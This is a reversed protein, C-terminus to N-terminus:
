PVTRGAACVGIRSTNRSTNLATFTVTLSKSTVGGEGGAVATLDITLRQWDNTGDADFSTFPHAGSVGSALPVWPTPTIPAPGDVWTRRQLQQDAVHLRLETCLSAGSNETRYEIYPDGNVVDQISLASAYRVERDLRDYATEVQSQAISASEIKSTSRFIQVLGTMFISVAVSLIALSVMLELLTFGADGGVRLHSCRESACKGHVAWGM